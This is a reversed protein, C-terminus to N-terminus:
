PERTLNAFHAGCQEYISIHQNRPCDASLIEKLRPLGMQAGHKVALGAISYRGRRPCKSCAVELHAMGRAQLAALTVGGTFGVRKPYGHAQARQPNLSKPIAVSGFHRTQPQESNSGQLGGHAHNSSVRQVPHASIASASTDQISIAWRTLTVASKRSTFALCAAHAGIWFPYRALALAVRGDDFRVGDNRVARRAADDYDFPAIHAALEIRLVRPNERV